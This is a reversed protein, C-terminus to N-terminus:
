YPHRSAREPSVAFCINFATKEDQRKKKKKRMFAFIREPNRKTAWVLYLHLEKTFAFHHLMLKSFHPSSCRRCPSTNELGSSRDPFLLTGLQPFPPLNLLRRLMVPSHLLDATDGVACFCWSTMPSGLIVFSTKLRGFVANPGGSPCNSQSHKNRSSSRMCRMAQPSCPASRQAPNGPLM